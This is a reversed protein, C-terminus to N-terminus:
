CTLTAEGGPTLSVRGCRTVTGGDLWVVQREGPFVHFVASGEVVGLASAPIARDLYFTAGRSADGAVVTLRALELTPVDPAFVTEASTRVEVEEAHFRGFGEDAPSVRRLEVRYRGAPLARSWPTTGAPEGDLWLELGDPTPAVRLTGRTAVPIAPLRLTDTATGGPPLVVVVSDARFGPAEARVLYRGPPLPISLPGPATISGGDVTEGSEPDLVAYRADQDTFLLLAAPEETLGRLELRDGLALWSVNLAETFLAYGPVRAEFAHPGPRTHFSWSDGGSHVHVTDDGRTVQVSWRPDGPLPQGSVEVRHVPFQYLAWLPAGVFLLLTYVVTVMQVPLLGMFQALTLEQRKTVGVAGLFAVVAGWVGGVVKQVRDYEASYMFLWVGVLVIDLTLLVLLISRWPTWGQAPTPGGTESAPPM